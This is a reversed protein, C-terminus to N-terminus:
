AAGAPPAASARAANVLAVSSPAPHSSAPNAPAPNAPAPNAPAPNAPTPNAPAPNAPAPNAPAPNAPAPNSSPTDAGAIFTVGELLVGASELELGYALLAITELRPSRKSRELLSIETRDLKCVRALREQSIGKRRREVRLKRAFQDRIPGTAAGGFRTRV